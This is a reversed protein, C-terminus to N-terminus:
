GQQNLGLRGAFEKVGSDQGIAQITRRERLAVEFFQELAIRRVVDQDLQSIPVARPDKQMQGVLLGEFRDPRLQKFFHGAAECVRPLGRM